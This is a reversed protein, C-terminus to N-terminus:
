FRVKENEIRPMSRGSRTPLSLKARWERSGDEESIRRRSNVASSDNDGEGGGGGGGESL